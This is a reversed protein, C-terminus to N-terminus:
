LGKATTEIWVAFKERQSALTVGISKAEETKFDPLELARLSQAFALLKDKDPAAAAKKAAAAEDAAKKAAADRLEKAEAEAKERAAKELAALADAKRKQEAATAQIKEREAKAKAEIEAKEQAAKAAALKAAADAKAKEEAAIRAAEAREEALKKEAAEREAKAAAERAIAEQQLRANEARIREREAADAQEKAIRDEEAKKAAAIAQEKALRVGTLLQTFTPEPMDRVAYLNVDEVYPALAAKRGAELADKRAIEAREATDEADQLAKEVPALDAELINYFGDVARGYTLANAKQAKKVKEGEIRVRRIALRCARARKIETVCTADKVSEAVGVADALVTRAQIFLPRFAAVLPTTSAQELGTQGAYAVLKEEVPSVIELETTPNM